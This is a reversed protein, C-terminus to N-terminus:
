CVVTRQTRTQAHTRGLVQLPTFNRAHFFAGVGRRPMSCVCLRVRLPSCVPRLSLATTLCACVSVCARM